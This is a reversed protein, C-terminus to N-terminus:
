KAYDRELRLSSVQEELVKIKDIYKKNECKAEKLILFKYNEENFEKNKIQDNLYNIRNTYKEEKTKM